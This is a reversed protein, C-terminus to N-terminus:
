AQSAAAGACICGRDLHGTATALCYRTAIADHQADPHGCTCALPQADAVPPHAPSATRTEPPVAHITAATDPVHGNASDAM